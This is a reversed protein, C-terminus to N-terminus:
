RKTKRNPIAALAVEEVRGAITDLDHHRRVWARGAEGTAARAAPDDVFRLVSAAIEEPISASAFPAPEPYAHDFVFHSVVPRACSMAELEAMGVAGLNVQGIVVGHRAIVAPLDRRKQRPIFSVNSLAAFEATREGGSIATIRIDPREGQLIRCARLIRPAGKLDDLACAIYVTNSEAAPALPSFTRWDIPNPLFEADPRYRKTHPELDPTSYFVHAARELAQKTPWRTFPTLGWVDAGHAHLIYPRRAAIGLVGLYAYHIHLLDYRDRRVRRVIDAWDLARLPAVAPKVMVPLSGGILRPQILDAVHGRARLGRALESAVSAVDNIEAIRM